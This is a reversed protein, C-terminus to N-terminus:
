TERIADRSLGASRIGTQSHSLEGWGIRADRPRLGNNYQKGRINRFHELRTLRDIVCQPRDQLRYWPSFSCRTRVSLSQRVREGGYTGVAMVLNQSGEVRASAAAERPGGREHPPGGSVYVQRFKERM